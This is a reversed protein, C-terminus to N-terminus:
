RGNICIPYYIRWYTYLVGKGKNHLLTCFFFWIFVIKKENVWMDEIFYLFFYISFINLFSVYSYCMRIDQIIAIIKYFIIKISIPSTSVNLIGWKLDVSEKNPKWYREYTFVKLILLAESPVPFFVWITIIKIM